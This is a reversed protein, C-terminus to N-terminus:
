SCRRGPSTTLDSRHGLRAEDARRRGHCSHKGTVNVDTPTTPISLWGRAFRSRARCIDSSLARSLLFPARLNVAVTRDFDEISFAEIPKEILIAANNVLVDVEDVEAVLREVEEPDALDARVTRTRAGIEHDLINVVIVHRGSAGLAEAIARGIGQATGTVLATRQIVM